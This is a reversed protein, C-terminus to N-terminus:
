KKGWIDGISVEVHSNLLVAKSTEPQLAIIQLDAVPIKEAKERFVSFVDGTRLGHRQGKDLYVIDGKSALKSTKHTEVIYGNVSPYRVVVPELPLDIEMYPLLSDGVHVEEYSASVNAQITDRETGIVEVIGPVKILYGLLDGTKPHMVTKVNRVIFFKDGNKAKGSIKLYVIDNRGVVTRNEQAGKILGISSFEESIWGSSISLEKTIIYKKPKEMEITESAKEEATKPLTTVVPIEKEVAPFEVEPMLAERSPIKLKDGPYILDPNKIQPNEKWLRPWLFPDQLKSDSIDWLTDGKKILYDEPSTDQAHSSFVFLFTILILLIPCLLNKM